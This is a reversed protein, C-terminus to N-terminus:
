QVLQLSTELLRRADAAFLLLVGELSAILVTLGLAIKLSFGVSFVNVGSVARGVLGLAVDSLLLAAAVPMAMRFALVLMGSGLALAEPLWSHVEPLGGPPVLRYSLVLARLLEIHGGLVFFVPLALMRGYQGLLGEQRDGEPSVMQAFGLGMQSETLSGALSVAEFLLMASMGLCIGVLAESALALAYSGENALLGEPVTITPLALLGLGCALALRVPAPTGRAGMIPAVLALGGTRVTVIGLTAAFTLPDNM